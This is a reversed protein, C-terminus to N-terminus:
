LASTGARNAGAIEYRANEVGAGLEPGFFTNLWVALTYLDFLYGTARTLDISRLRNIEALEATLAPREFVGHDFGTQCNRVTEVMESWGALVTQNAPQTYNGKDRRDLIRDPVIGRLSDRLLAKYVGARYLVTPPVRMLFLLLDFDLFPQGSEAGYFAAMKGAAEIKAIYYPSRVTSFIAAAHPTLGRPLWERWLERPSLGAHVEPTFPARAVHANLRTRRWDLLRQPTASRLAMRLLQTRLFGAREPTQLTLHARLHRAASLWRFGRLLEWVYVPPWPALVNDGWAGDLIITAGSARALARANLHPVLPLDCVPLEMHWVWQETVGSRWSTDCPIREIPHRTHQELADLYIQEDALGGDAAAFSLALPTNALRHAVCLISSSDLGGSVFVASSRQLRRQVAQTFFFTFEERYDRTAARYGGPEPEWYRELTTAEPTVLLAHAAPLVSIGAFVTEGPHLWRAGLYYEGLARLNPKREVGHQCLLGKVLTSFLLRDSQRVYYLPRIGIKDRLLTLRANREDLIVAVFEGNLRAAFELRDPQYARAIVEAPTSDAPLDFLKGAVMVHVGDMVRTSVRTALADLAYGVSLVRQGEVRGYQTLGHWRPERLSLDASAAWCGLLEAM